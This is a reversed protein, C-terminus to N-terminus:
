RRLHRGADQRGHLIRAVRILTPQDRYYIAHSGVRLSLSGSVKAQHGIRDGVALGAMAMNLTDIYREAQDQGWRMDTYSWIGSLDARARAGLELRKGTM